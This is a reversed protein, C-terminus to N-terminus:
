VDKIYNIAMNKSSGMESMDKDIAKAENITHGYKTTLYSHRLANISTGTAVGKFIKSLRQNVKVSNLPSMNTDFLLYETPNVKIWKMLITKLEKPIDIVQQGYTKSTKYKNFVM